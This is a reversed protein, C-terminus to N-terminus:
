GAPVTVMYGLERAARALEDLRADTEGGHARVELAIITGDPHLLVLAPAPMLARRVTEDGAQRQAMWYLVEDGWEGRGVIPRVQDQSLGLAQFVRALNSSNPRKVAATKTAPGHEIRHMSSESIGARKALQRMNLGADERAERIAAGLKATDIEDPM